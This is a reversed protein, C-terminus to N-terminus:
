SQKRSEHLIKMVIEEYYNSTVLEGAGLVGTKRDLEAKLVLKEESGRIRTSLITERVIEFYRPYGTIIIGGIIVLEPDLLNILNRLAIGTYRASQNFLESTVLDGSDAAKLADLITLQARKEYLLHEPHNELEGRLSKLLAIGSGLAELCGQRGCSCLPGDMAVVTHGFEGAIGNAGGHLKGELVIGSGIGMDIDVYVLNNYARGMRHWYEGLAIANTDKEVFVPLCLREALIKRIPLYNLLELNPPIRITGEQLDIPGPVAAGAGLIREPLLDDDLTRCGRAIVEQVSGVLTSIFDHQSTCSGTDFATWAIETGHLDLLAVRSKFRNIHIGITYAFSENVVYTVARRGAGSEEHRDARILNLQELETIIKQIAMVTLGTASALAAKTVTGNKRIYDLIARRNMYKLLYRSGAKEMGTDRNM